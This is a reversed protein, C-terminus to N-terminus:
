LAVRERWLISIHILDKMYALDPKEIKMLRYRIENNATVIMIELHLCRLLKETSSLPAVSM